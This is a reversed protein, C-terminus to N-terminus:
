SQPGTKACVVRNRGERKAQYLAKDATYIIDQESSGHDPFHAVGASITVRVPEGDVEGFDAQEVLERIREALACAGQNDVEPLILGFEEGGYRAFQDVDRIAKEVITTLIRLVNDGAVHGYRDNVQKFHDLDIMVLSLRHEFRIARSFEIRFVRDFERRNLSGTLGDQRSLVDLKNHAKELQETMGNFSQSLAGIEDVRESALRTSYNGEGVSKAARGITCIPEVIARALSSNLWLILIASVSTGGIILGIMLVQLYEAKQLEDKVEEAIINSLKELLLIIQGTMTNLSEMDTALDKNGLTVKSNLITNATKDIRLWLQKVQGVLRKEQEHISTYEILDEISNSVVAAQLDYNGRETKNAHILYDNPAIIAVHIANQLQKIRAMEHSGHNIVQNLHTITSNFVMYQVAVLVALPILMLSAVLTFRKRLSHRYNLVKNM